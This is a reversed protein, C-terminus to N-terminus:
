VRSGSSPAPLRAVSPSALHPQDPGAEHAVDTDSRGRIVRGPQDPAGPFKALQVAASVGVVLGGIAAFVHRWVESPVLLGGISLVAHYGAVAAPAAFLLAIGGRVVPSRVSTFLVQAAVLAIAGAVIGVLVAGIVGAGTELAWLGVTLGVISPVAYVAFTFLLALFTGLGFLSVIIGLTM